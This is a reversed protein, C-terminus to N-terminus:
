VIGRGWIGDENSSTRTSSNRKKKEDSRRKPKSSRGLNLTRNYTDVLGGYGEGEGGYLDGYEKDDEDMFLSERVISSNLSM